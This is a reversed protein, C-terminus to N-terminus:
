FLLLAWHLRAMHTIELKWSFIELSFSTLSLQINKGM